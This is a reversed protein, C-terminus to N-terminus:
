ALPERSAATLQGELINTTTFLEHHQALPQPTNAALPQMFSPSSAHMWAQVTLGDVPHTTPTPMRGNDAAPAAPAANQVIVVLAQKAGNILTQM